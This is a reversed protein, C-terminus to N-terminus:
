ATARAPKIFVVFALGGVFVCACIRFLYSYAIASASQMLLGNIQGMSAGSSRTVGGALAMWAVSTERALLTTLVAIGVSAGLQRVLMSVGTASALENKPIPALMTATVPVFTLGMGLGQILRPWFVDTLGASGNLDGFWWCSWASLLLGAATLIRADVVPMLRGVVVMAVATALAGPLLAVGTGFATTGMSTQFFLPMILATGYLGFGVIIMLLNGFVFTPFRFSRLDVLPHAARLTRILFWATALVAVFSLVVITSSDWWDDHQGRELVYQLAALGSSLLALGLWDVGGKPKQLYHPDPIFAITMFFAAIGIPLNVFFILPWTANDIIYGGLLPGLAPGVMAGVGFIATAM